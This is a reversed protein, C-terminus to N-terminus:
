YKKLNRQSDLIRNRTEEISLVDTNLVKELKFIDGTSVIKWVECNRNMLYNAEGAVGAGWKGDQFPLFIGASCHPLVQNFFYNMANGTRKKEEM